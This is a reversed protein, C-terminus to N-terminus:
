RASTGRTIHITLSKKECYWKEENIAVELYFRAHWHFTDEQDADAGRGTDKRCVEDM